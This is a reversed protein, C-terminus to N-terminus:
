RKGQELALIIVREVTEFSYLSTTKLSDNVIKDPKESNLIEYLKMREGGSKCSGDTGRASYNKYTRGLRLKWM